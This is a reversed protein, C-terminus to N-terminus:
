CLISRPIKDLDYLKKRKILFKCYYLPTLIEVRVAEAVSKTSEDCHPVGDPCRHSTPRVTWQNQHYCIPHLLCLSPFPLLFPFGPWSCHFLYFEIQSAILILNSHNCIDPGKTNSFLPFLVPHNKM